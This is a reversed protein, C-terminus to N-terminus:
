WTTGGDSSCYIGGATESGSTGVRPIQAGVLVLNSNQPNVAIYSIRAGGDNFFGFNLTNTFPGIFPCTSSAVTCTQTWTQGHDTSKLVGAGYYIDFGISAQEGTGAYVINPSSPSFAISGMALSPNADGVATWTAGADTSRWIGGQAGGLLVTDGVSGTLPAPDVAIAEIRGSVPSFFGGTTPAPGLPSWTGGVASGAEPSVAAFNGDPQRVLKGEAAMMRQMHQFAKLRAGPPLTLNPYARQKYFWLERKKVQEADEHQPKRTSFKPSQQPRNADNKEQTPHGVKAPQKPSAASGKEQAFARLAFCSSLLLLGAAMGSLLARLFVRRTFPTASSPNM